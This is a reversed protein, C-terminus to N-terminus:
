LFIEYNKVIRILYNKDLFALLFVRYNIALIFQLIANWKKNKQM